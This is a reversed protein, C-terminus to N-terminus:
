GSGLERVAARAETPYHRILARMQIVSFAERSPRLAEQWGDKGKVLRETIVFEILDELTPRL